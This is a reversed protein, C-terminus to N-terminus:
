RVLRSVGIGFKRRILQSLTSGGRLGRGGQKLGNDIACWTEGHSQPILGAKRTPWYGYQRHFASVWALIQRETLKPLTVKSRLNRQRAVFHAVTEGGPLGRRGEVLARNVREWAEGPAEP